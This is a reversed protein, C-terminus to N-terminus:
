ELNYEFEQFFIFTRLEYKTTLSIKSHHLPLDKTSYGVLVSKNPSTPNSGFGLDLLMECGRATGANDLLLELVERGRVTEACSICFGFCCHGDVM